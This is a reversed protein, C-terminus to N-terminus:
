RHAMGTRTCRGVRAPAADAMTARAARPSPAVFPLAPAPVSPRRLVVTDDSDDGVARDYARADPLDEAVVLTEAPARAAVLRVASPRDDDGAALAAVDPWTLRRASDEVAVLVHGPEDPAAIEFSGRWTVTCVGRRTDIWLSDAHLFVERASGSREVFARPRLGPLRSRLRPLHPHVNELLIVEDAALAELRQDPPAVNFFGPEISEPLPRRNWDAEWGAGDRLHRRRSPWTAAIPGFCAIEDECRRRGFPELRPLCRTATSGDDPDIGVPNDSGPGGLAHEYRLPARHFADGKHLQGHEDVWRRPFCVIRKDLSGVCLRTVLARSGSKGRAVAEGVMTVDVRDKFPVHDSPTHLSQAPDDDYHHDGALIPDQEPALTAQGQRLVFTAKAIVVFAHGGFRPRWPLGDAVIHSLSSVFM